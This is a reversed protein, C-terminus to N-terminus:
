SAASTPIPHERRFRAFRLWGSVLMPLSTVALTLQVGTRGSPVYQDAVLATLLALAAYAFFRPSDGKIALACTAIGLTLGISLPAHGFAWDFVALLPVLLPSSKDAQFILFVAVGLLALLGLFLALGFRSGVSGVPITTGGRPLVYRKKAGPLQLWVLMWPMYWYLFFSERIFMTAASLLIALGLFAEFLGDSLYRELPNKTDQRLTVTTAM